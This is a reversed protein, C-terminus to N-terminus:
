KGSINENKGAINWRRELNTELMGKKCMSVMIAKLNRLADVLRDFSYRGLFYRTM